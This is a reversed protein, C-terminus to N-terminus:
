WEPAAGPASDLAIASRPQVLVELGLQSVLSLLQDVSVSGPDHEMASVRSQSLGLRQALGAQSLGAARRASRLVPGLQSSLTLVQMM